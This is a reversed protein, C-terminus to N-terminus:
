RIKKVKSPKVGFRAALYNRISDSMQAMTSPYVPIYLDVPMGVRNTFSSDADLLALSRYPFLRVWAMPAYREYSASYVDFYMSDQVAGKFTKKVLYVTKLSNQSDAAASVALFLVILLLIKKM